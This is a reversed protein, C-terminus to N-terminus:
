RAFSLLEEAACGGASLIQCGWSDEGDQRGLLTGELSAASAAPGATSDRGGPLGSHVRLPKCRLGLGITQVM